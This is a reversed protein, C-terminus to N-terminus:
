AGLLAMHHTPTLQLLFSSLHMGILFDHEAAHYVIQAQPHATMVAEIAGVHDLHGHTLLVLRLKSSGLATTLAALLLATYDATPSGVDVLM